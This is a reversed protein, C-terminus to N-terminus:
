IKVIFCLAVQNYEDDFVSAVVPRTPGKSRKELPGFRLTGSDKPWLIQM